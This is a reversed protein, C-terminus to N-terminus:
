RVTFGGDVTVVSGTVRAAEDGALWVVAGAVDDPEMLANMPQSEVFTQEHEAVPLELSRAIESLMRGEVAPDDRISGPCVVNVRVHLPAYDLAAARTLGILGHKSAVYGAFHRYGVLGATSSVNIISGRRRELMVPAVARIMRWAGSLNIDIMTQWETDTVEHVPRGSPAVIGANNVLVDVVGFRELATRVTQAATREDRVDGQVTVVAAGHTRCLEATADLQAKTGLPYPVDPLDAAVDVLVLAAGEEAFRAACARGVGRAAGTIVAVKGALRVAPAKV